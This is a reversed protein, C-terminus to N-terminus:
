FNRGTDESDRTTSANQAESNDEEGGRPGRGGRGRARGGRSYPAPSQKRYTPGASREQQAVARGRQRAQKGALAMLQEIAGRHVAFENAVDALDVFGNGAADTRVPLIPEGGAVGLVKLGESAGGTLGFGERFCKPRRRHIAVPGGGQVELSVSDLIDKNLVEFEAVLPFLPWQLHAVKPAYVLLQAETANGLVFWNHATIREQGRKHIMLASLFSLDEPQGYHLYVGILMEDPTLSAGKAFAVYQSRTEEKTAATLVDREMNAAERAARWKDRALQREEKYHELLVTASNDHHTVGFEREFRAVALGPLSIRGWASSHILVDLDASNTCLAAELTDVISQAAVDDSIGVVHKVYQKDIRINLPPTSM